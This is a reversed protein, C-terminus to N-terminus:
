STIITGWDIANWVAWALIAILLVGASFIALFSRTLFFWVLLFIPASLAVIPGSLARALLIEHKRAVFYVVEDPWLWNFRTERALRRSAISAAFASKLKPFLKLYENFDEKPLWFVSTKESATVTASRKRKAFLAEEGFYDGGVLTALELNEKRRVQTIGVKGQYIICFRDADAGQTFIVKGEEFVDEKLREAISALEEDKLDHFLHIRRLFAM